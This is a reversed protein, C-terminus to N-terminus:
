HLLLFVKQLFCKKRYIYLIIGKFHAPKQWAHRETAKTTELETRGQPSYGALSRQSCIRCVLISSHTAIGEEPPDEWSLSRVQPREGMKHTAPLNKVTSGGQFGPKQQTVFSILWLQNIRKRKLRGGSLM